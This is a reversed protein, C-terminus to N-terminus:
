INSRAVHLLLLPHSIDLMGHAQLGINGVPDHIRCRKPEAPAASMCQSLRYFANPRSHHLPLQSALALSSYSAFGWGFGM